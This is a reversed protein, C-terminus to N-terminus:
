LRDLGEVVLTNPSLATKKGGLARKFGTSKQMQMQLSPLGRGM